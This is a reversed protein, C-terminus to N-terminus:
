ASSVCFHTKPRSDAWSGATPATSDSGMFLNATEEHCSFLTSLPVSPAFPLFFLSIFFKCGSFFFSFDAGGGIDNSFSLLVRYFTYLEAVGRQFRCLTTVLIDACVKKYQATVPKGWKVNVIRLM